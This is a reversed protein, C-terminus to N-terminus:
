DYANVMGSILNASLLAANDVARIRTASVLRSPIAHLWEELKRRAADAEELSVAEFAIKAGPGFRGLPSVDASIVTAIKPYGGTTQRDALLVIPRQHGPVQIAGPAIGDSVINYGKAHEIPPGDLRMGMRDCDRTITYTSELFARIGAPTFYDDQPGLVVRVRPPLGPEPEPLMVDERDAVEGCRLKLVDGARLPRGEVGGIGARVYTAHSGLVPKIDFGGEVALYGVTSGVLPGIRFQQGRGLVVSQRAPVRDRGIEISSTGGVLAVRTSPVTVEITSGQYAFELCATGPANGVIANAVRLGVQDLAGSVPVGFRQYGQRGLDQLTTMVGPAVIRLGVNM